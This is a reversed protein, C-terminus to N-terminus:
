ITDILFLLSQVIPVTAAKTVAEAPMPALGIGKESIAKKYIIFAEIIAEIVAINPTLAEDFKTKLIIDLVILFSNQDKSALSPRTSNILNMGQIPDIVPPTIEDTEAPTM